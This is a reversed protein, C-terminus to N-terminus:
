VHLETTVVAKSYDSLRDYGMEGGSVDNPGLNDHKRHDYGVYM